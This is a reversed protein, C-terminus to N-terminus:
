RLGGHCGPQFPGFSGPYRGPRVGSPASDGRQPSTSASALARISQGGSKKALRNARKIGYEIARRYSDVSYREGTTKQPKRKRRNQQSPQVRTKRNKRQEARREAEAEAPSFLYATLETKLWPRLIEQAKPGLYIRRERGHHETKHSEPTYIWVSVTRDIDITRMSCVEGPRMGSLRELEIMAWVQRAVHPRVADVFAEPVPKIPESERVDTRGRRLGPVVQLAQHVSPPIMGEGVAWKFARVVRGTRRNVESRCIDADITAQRVAKLGKPGFEKALTSGYLRRLPRIALRINAPEKTPKGNKVYYSDVHSLYAILLENVTLDSTADVIPTPLRRGNSLWEALLRDFETRSAQSGHRGLYIDRGDLTVVAQGSPKHIRYSPTRLTHTSM